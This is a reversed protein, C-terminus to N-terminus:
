FSARRAKAPGNAEGAINDGTCARIRARERSFLTFISIARGSDRGAELSRDRVRSSNKQAHADSLDSFGIKM